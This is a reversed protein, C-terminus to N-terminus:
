CQKGGRACQTKYEFTRAMARRSRQSLIPRSVLKKAVAIIILFLFLTPSLFALLFGEVGAYFVSFVVMLLMIKRITSERDETTQSGLLRNKHSKRILLIVNSLYWTLLIAGIMGLTYPFMMLSSEFVMLGGHESDVGFVPNEVFGTILRDYVESRTDGRNSLIEPADVNFFVLYVATAIALFTMTRFRKLLFLACLVPAVALVLASRSGTLYTMVLLFIAIFTFTLITIRNSEILMGTIVIVFGIAFTSGAFQPNGFIFYFRGLYSGGSWGVYYLEYASLVAVSAVVFSLLRILKIVSIRDILDDVIISFSLLTLIGFINKFTELYTLEIKSTLSLKLFFIFHFILIPAIFKLLATKIKKNISLSLATGVLLFPVWDRITSFSEWVRSRQFSIVEGHSVFQTFGSAILALSLIVIEIQLLM